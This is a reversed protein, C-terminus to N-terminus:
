RGVKVATRRYSGTTFSTATPEVGVRQPARPTRPEDRPPRQPQVVVRRAHTPDYDASTCTTHPADCVPCNGPDHRAYFM